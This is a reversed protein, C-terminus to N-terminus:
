SSALSVLLVVLSSLIFLPTFSLPISQSPLLSIYVVPAPPDPELVPAVSLCWLPLNGIENEGTITGVLVESLRAPSM